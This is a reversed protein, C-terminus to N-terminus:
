RVLNSEFIGGAENFRCDAIYEECYTDYFIYDNSWLIFDNNRIRSTENDLIIGMEASYQMHTRSNIFCKKGLIQLLSIETIM